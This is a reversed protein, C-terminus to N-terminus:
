RTCENAGFGGTKHTARIKNPALVQLTLAGSQRGKGQPIDAWHGGVRSGHVQGHFVNSWTAGGDSSRGYWWLEKGTQRVFYTGGDNCRWTDTLGDGHAGAVPSRLKPKQGKAPERPIEEFRDFKGGSTVRVLAGESHKLAAEVERRFAPDADLVAQAIKLYAFLYKVACLYSSDQYCRFGVQFVEDPSEAHAPPGGSTLAFGFSVTLAMLLRWFAQLSSM